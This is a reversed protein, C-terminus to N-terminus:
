MLNMSFIMGSDTTEGRINGPSLSAADSSLTAALKARESSGYMVASPATLINISPTTNKQTLIVKDQTAIGYNLLFESLDGHGQDAAAKSPSCQAPDISCQKLNAGGLLLLEVVDLQGYYCALWLASQGKVNPTDINKLIEPDDLLLKVMEVQGNACAAALPSIGTERHCKGKDINKNAILPFLKILGNECILYFLTAGESNYENLESDYFQLLSRKVIDVHGYKAAITLRNLKSIKAGFLTHRRESSIKLLPSTIEENDYEILNEKSSNFSLYRLAKLQSQKEDKIEWKKDGMYYFFENNNEKYVYLHNEDSSEHSRYSIDKMLFVYCGEFKAYLADVSLKSCALLEEASPRRDWTRWCWNFLMELLFNGHKAPTFPRRDKSLFSYIEGSKKININDYYHKIDSGAALEWLVMGLSFVDTKKNNRATQNHLLEPAMYRETGRGMAATENEFFALGFDVYVITYNPGVMINKSAIDAHVVGKRHLHDLGEILGTCLLKRIDCSSISNFDKEIYYNLPQGDVLDMVIAKEFQNFYYGIFKVVNPVDAQTLYALIHVEDRLYALSTKELLPGSDAFGYKIAVKKGQYEGSFVEGYAGSGLLDEKKLDALAIPQFENTHFTATLDPKYWDVLTLAEDEKGHDILFRLLPTGDEAKTNPDAHESLLTMIRKTGAPSLKPRDMIQKIEKTNEEDYGTQEQGQRQM